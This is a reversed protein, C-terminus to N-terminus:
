TTNASAKFRKLREASSPQMENVDRHSFQKESKERESVAVRHRSRGPGGHTVSEGIARWQGNEVEQLHLDLCKLSCFSSGSLPRGRKPVIYVHRKM